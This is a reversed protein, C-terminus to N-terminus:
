DTLADSLFYNPPRPNLDWEPYSEIVVNFFGKPTFVM